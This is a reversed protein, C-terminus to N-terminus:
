NTPREYVVRAKRMIDYGFKKVLDEAQNLTLIDVQLVVAKEIDQIMSIFQLGIFSDLDVVVDLDSANTQMGDAFSGFIYAKRVQPYSKIFTNKVIEAAEPFTQVM